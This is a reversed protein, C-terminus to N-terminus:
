SKKEPLSFDQNLFLGVAASDSEEPAWPAFLTDEPRFPGNTTEHFVFIDSHIILTHYSFNNLRYYFHKRSSHQGMPVIHELKGDDDFILIDAEGDIVHFSESKNTHKHPRIYSGRTHVILMEHLSDSPHLHACIRARKRCNQKARSVLWDIDDRNIEVLKGISYFIEENATEIFPM